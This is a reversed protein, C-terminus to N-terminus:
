EYRILALTSSAAIAIGGTVTGSAMSGAGTTAAFATMEAVTVGTAARTQSRATIIQQEGNNLRRHSALLRGFLLNRLKCM